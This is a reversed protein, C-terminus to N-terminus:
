QPPFNFISSERVAFGLSGLVLVCYQGLDIQSVHFIQLANRESSATIFALVFGIRGSPRSFGGRERSSLVVFFHLFYVGVFCAPLVRDVPLRACITGIPGSFLNANPRFLFLHFVYVDTLGEAVFNVPITM